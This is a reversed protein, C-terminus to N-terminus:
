SPHPDRMEDGQVVPAACPLLDPRRRAGYQKVKSVMLAGSGNSSALRRKDPRCSSRSLSSRASRQKSSQHKVPALDIKYVDDGTGFRVTTGDAITVGDVDDPLPVNM